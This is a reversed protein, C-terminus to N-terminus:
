MNRQAEIAIIEPQADIYKKTSGHPSGDRERAGNLRETYIHTDTYKSIM